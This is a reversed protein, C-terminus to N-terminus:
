ESLLKHDVLWRAFKLRRYTIDVEENEVRRFRQRMRILAQIQEPDFGEELLNLREKMLAYDEMTSEKRAKRRMPM